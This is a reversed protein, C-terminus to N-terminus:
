RVLANFIHRDPLLQRDAYRHYESQKSERKHNKLVISLFLKLYLAQVNPQLVVVQTHAFREVATATDGVAYYLTIDMPM